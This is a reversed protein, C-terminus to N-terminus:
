RGGAAAAAKAAPATAQEPATEPEQDTKVINQAAGPPMRFSVDAKQGDPNTITLTLPRSSSKGFWRKYQELDPAELDAPDISLRLIRAM